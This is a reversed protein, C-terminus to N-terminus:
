FKGHSVRCVSDGLPPRDIRFTVVHRVGRCDVTLSYGSLWDRGDVVPAVPYALAGPEALTGPEASPTTVLRNLRVCAPEAEHCPTSVKTLYIGALGMKRAIIGFQAESVEHLPVPVSGPPVVQSPAAYTLLIGRMLMDVCFLFLGEPGALDPISFHIPKDERNELFVVSALHAVNSEAIKPGEGFDPRPGSIRM